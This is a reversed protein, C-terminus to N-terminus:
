TFTESLVPAIPVAPASGLTVPGTTAGVTNKAVIRYSLPGAPVSTDTFTTGTVNSAVTSWTSGGDTSRQVDSLPGGAGQIWTVTWSTMSVPLLTPAGPALPAACVFVPGPASDGQTNSNLARYRLSGSPQTTDDFQGITTSSTNITTWTSGGDSSRQIKVASVIQPSSPELTLSNYFVRWGNAIATATLAIQDPPGPVPAPEFDAWLDATSPTSNSTPSYLWVDGTAQATLSSSFGNQVGVRTPMTATFTVPATGPTVLVSNLRLSPPGAVGMGGHASISAIYGDFPAVFSVVIPNFVLPGVGMSITFAESTSFNGVIM